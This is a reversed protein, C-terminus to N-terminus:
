RDFALLEAPQGDGTGGGKGGQPDVLTVRVGPQLAVTVSGCAPVVYREVGLRLRPLGPLVAAGRRTPTMWSDILAM